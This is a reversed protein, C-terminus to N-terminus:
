VANNHFHATTPVMMTWLAAGTWWQEGGNKLAGESSSGPLCLQNVLKKLYAEDTYEHVSISLVASCM